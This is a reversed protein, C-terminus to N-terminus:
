LLQGTKMGIVKSTITNIADNYILFAALLLVADEHGRLEGITKKLRSFAM